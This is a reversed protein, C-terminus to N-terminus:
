TSAVISTRDNKSRCSDKRTGEESNRAEQDRDIADTEHESGAIGASQEKMEVHCDDSATLAAM